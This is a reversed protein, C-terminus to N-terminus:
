TQSHMPGVRIIHNARELGPALTCHIATCSCCTTCVSMQVATSGYITTYGQLLQELNCTPPKLGFSLMELEDACISIELAVRRRM